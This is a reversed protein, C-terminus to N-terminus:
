GGASDAPRRADRPSPVRMAALEALEAQGRATAAIYRDPRLLVADAGFRDLAVGLGPSNVADFVAVTAVVGEPLPNRVILAPAFGISDDLMRGDRLTPQPFLHGRCPTDMAIMGGLDSPGLTPSISAMSAIGTEDQSAMALASEPELANVLGGLRMATEIYIRAHPAREEQYSDLIGPKALGKVCLALKWALNASDRIGACMGQGMFPPTLHAADGAIMMQGKRWSRAIKSEFTYVACRELDADQPGIWDSLFSWIREERTVQDDAEDDKLSIEWRRRNKPSRCYTMPREPDCFQISHDGLDPRERKLLVDVVLWREKFGLDIMGRGIADRVLSRAGDCGVVYSASLDRMRGSRADRCVAVVDRKRAELAVVELGTMMEVNSRDALRGRLLKELDPQHLRYSAHWGQPGIGQPRPWDLLLEHNPGVFRMGQNVIVEHQLRESIGASQFVRMTEGDFHVARPLPYIGAERDIGIVHIGCEALLNALTAGTPGLGVIIVEASDSNPSM